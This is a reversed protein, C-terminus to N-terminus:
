TGRFIGEAALRECGILAAEDGLTGAVVQIESRLGPLHRALHTRFAPLIIDQRRMIGGGIVVIAPDYAIVATLLVTAWVRLSHEVLSQSCVDGEDACRFLTEYDLVPAQSLRSKPFEPWQRALEPLTATSAQDEACGPNGCRGSPGDFKVSSHGMLTAARNRAGRFLRGGSLVACGIGTGLAIMVASDYGKAAGAASEGLLAVRLDNELAVPLGLRERGWKAFDVEAAGPFKGFDGLVRANVPDALFPLALAAAGCADPKLGASALMAEWRVAIAELCDTM